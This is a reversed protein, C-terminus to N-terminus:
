DLLTLAIFRKQGAQTYAVQVHAMAPPAASQFTHSVLEMANRFDGVCLHYLTAIYGPSEASYVFDCRAMTSTPALAM